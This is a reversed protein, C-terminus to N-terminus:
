DDNGRDLLQRVTTALDKLSFPKKLSVTRAQGRRAELEGTDITLIPLAAHRSRTQTLWADLESDAGASSDIILLDCPETSLIESTEEFSSGMRASYGLIELSEEITNALEPDGALTLVREDGTPLTRLPMTMLSSDEPTGASVPLYLTITTGIGPRSSLAVGGGSQEAFQRVMSLGLGTGRLEDKTSFYPEFVREQLLEPIGCGNDAVAIRTYRGPPLNNKGSGGNEVVVNRTSVTITGDAEIADRANMALNVIVSELQAASADVYATDPDLALQLAVRSDLAHELLPKLNTILANTDLTKVSGRDERSFALLRRILDAGRKAVDRARKAQEFLTPNDRVGETVLFLNGVLVTLLNNFDHVIGGMLRVTAESRATSQLTVDILRNKTVDTFVGLMFDGKGDQTSVSWIDGNLLIERGDAARLTLDQEAIRSTARAREWHQWDLPDALVETKFDVERLKQISELRLLRLLFANASLVRGSPSICIAAVVSSTLLARFALDAPQLERAQGVGTEPTVTQTM